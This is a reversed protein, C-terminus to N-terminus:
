AVAAWVEVVAVVEEVALVPVLVVQAVAAQIAVEPGHVLTEVARFYAAM